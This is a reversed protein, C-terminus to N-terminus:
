KGDHSFVSVRAPQLSRNSWAHNAGRLVAVEGAKMHVEQTDLVLTIEGELICCFDVTRTKQMYPHPASPSFTSASPSGMSTFFAQVQAPGVHDKWTQDPPFDIVRCVSGNKPPELTHPLHLTEYVMKAPHGDAVWLRASAYGPRAPDFRVDPAATDAVLKGEGEKEDVTVIRRAPKVGSPLHPAPLPKDNGQVLGKPGDVFEAFIMDFAMQAGNPYSWQHWAGVQIVTDGVEMPLRANELVLDRGGQIVIGYDLTQTKHMASEFQSNGGQDWVGLGPNRLKPPHRAVIERDTSLDYDKPKPRGQVVRFHGGEPPGCFTYGLNGDDNQGHIPLPTEHWVWIDTHGKGSGMSAEHSNPAPGDWTVNSRGQADHGTVVRRIPNLGKSM